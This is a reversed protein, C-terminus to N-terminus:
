LLYSHEIIALLKEFRQQYTLQREEELYGAGMVILHAHNIKVKGIENLFESETRL